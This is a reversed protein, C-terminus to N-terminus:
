RGNAATTAPAPKGNGPEALRMQFPTSATIGSVIASWRYDPAADRVIRRIVPLDYYEVGRGLAYTLLKETVTRVFQERRALLVERLGSLGQFRAGNPLAASADVPAGGEAVERWKGVADFNELAFGLPDMQSHCSSCVPNQRHQELRERVSAPKGNEGTEKL